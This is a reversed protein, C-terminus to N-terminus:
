REPSSTELGSGGSQVYAADADPLVLRSVRPTIRSSRSRTTQASPRSRITEASPSRTTRCGPSPGTRRRKQRLSAGTQAISAQRPM